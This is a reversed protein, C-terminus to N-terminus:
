NPKSIVKSELVVEHATRLSGTLNNMFLGHPFVHDEIRSEVAALDGKLANSREYTAGSAIAIIIVLLV